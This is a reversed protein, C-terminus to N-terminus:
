DLQDLVLKVNFRFGQMRRKGAYNKGKVSKLNLACASARAAPICMYTVHAIRHMDTDMHTDMDMYIVLEMDMVMLRIDMHPTVLMAIHRLLLESATDMIDMTLMLKLKQKRMLILLPKLM